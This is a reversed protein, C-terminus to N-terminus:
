HNLLVYITHHLFSNLEKETANGKQAHTSAAIGVNLGICRYFFNGKSLNVQIIVEPSWANFGVTSADMQFQNKVKSANPIYAPIFDMNDVIGGFDYEATARVYGGIGLAFKGKKDMLLFRPAKPDHIYRFQSENMIRVIEDGAKDITVMVIGNPAEDDIIVKEQAKAISPISGIGCLLFMVKLITKM